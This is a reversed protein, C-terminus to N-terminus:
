DRRVAADDRALPLEIAVHTFGHSRATDVVFARMSSALLRSCTTSSAPVVLALRDQSEAVCELDSRRLATTLGDADGGLPARARVLPEAVVGGLVNLSGSRFGRADIALRAFGADRVADAIACLAASSTWTELADAALEVRALDGHYRVRLDGTIGLGRLAREAREIQRLRDATVRTGYPIRSSLCPSAPQTWTPIARERSLRRITTKTFGLAALPSQVDHEAAARAGPRHDSLDDANTGDVVVAFGRERAIPTLVDWLETKCFYCRNSPNAAYRPDSVEDTLVELVPIGFTRAVEHAREWQEAPYSASRGIVALVRERGLADVAVCALDASDVGGSFGVLASGRSHFWDMLCHELARDDASPGDRETAVPDISLSQAM